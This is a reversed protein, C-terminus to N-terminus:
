REWHTGHWFVQQCRVCEWFRNHRALSRPPVRDGVEEGSLEVLEGGCAMCRSERLPLSLERLIHALQAQVDLGRPVFLSPVVSERARPQHSQVKQDRLFLEVPSWASSPQHTAARFAAPCTTLVRRREGRCAAAAKPLLRPTSNCWRGAKAPAVAPLTMAKCLEQEGRCRIGLGGVLLELFFVPGAALTATGKWEYRSPIP